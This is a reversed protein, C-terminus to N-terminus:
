DDNKRDKYKKYLKEHKEKMDEVGLEDFIESLKKHIKPSTKDEKLAYKLSLAANMYEKLECEAYAIKYYFDKKRKAFKIGSKYIAIAKAYDGIQCYLDGKGLYAEVFSEDLLIAKDFNAQAAKFALSNNLNAGYSIDGEEVLNSSTSYELSDYGMRVYEDALRTLLANKTAIKNELNKIEDKLKFIIDLKRSILRQVKPNNLENRQSVANAFEQIATMFDLKDFAKAANAYSYNAKAMEMAENILHIDNFRKSFNVVDQNVFIDRESLQRVLTIGELSTCRSLAVYTQGGAFAGGAFDIVVNNFTLGQSKHVTLAWAAKIPYQEFHGLITEKIKQEKEDFSYKMNEWLEKELSYVEGNELEISIYDDTAKFVRGLTGNVWRQSKDNRIFIVQAGQKLKLHQATPLNQLPFEGTIIGNYCIEPVKLEQLHRENIEDVTDRRTALTIAFKGEEEKVQPNFRENIAKIDTKAVDNVRIKDLLDIFRSDTQRYIKKLEIPVLKLLHFANANFFFSNTYYRRLIDKMDSTVVPELQFIDGVFLLQKGGFPERMNQCYVKLVKDIFDIIDARVMSIEDIIILDLENLLKVKEKNYKLTKRLNKPLFEVEDPLLPKFPIKFFSHLTMGGVNVAAIGTPALIVYKKNTNKCIYKLFTSKGTGAKGTLFVSQQTSSILKWVNKFEPNDLDINEPLTIEM